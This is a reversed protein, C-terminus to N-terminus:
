IILKPDKKFHLHFCKYKHIIGRLRYLEIIKVADDEVTLWHHTKHTWIHFLKKVM